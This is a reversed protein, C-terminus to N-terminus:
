CETVQELHSAMREVVKHERYPLVTRMFEPTEYPATEALKARALRATEWDGQEASVVCMLRWGASFAPNSITALRALRLTEDLNGTHYYASARGAHILYATPSRPTLREAQQFHDLALEPEGYYTRVWGSALWGASGNPNLALAQDLYMLATSWDRRFYAIVPAVFALAFPDMFGTKAAEDALDLSQAMGQPTMGGPSQTLTWALLATAQALSPDIERSKRLLRVAEDIDALDTSYIYPMARLYYDYASYDVLPKQASRAVESLIIRPEIAAAIRGAIGDLMVLLDTLEHEVQETWQQVGTAGEILRWVLRVRDSGKVVNGEVLYRVGLEEAITRADEHVDKYTMSSNHSVVFFGRVASLASIIGDTVGVAFYDEASDGGLNRFPLVAVSPYAGNPKRANAFQADLQSSLVDSSAERDAPQSKRPSAERRVPAHASQPRKLALVLDPSPQIQHAALARLGAKHQAEAEAQRDLALLCEILAIRAEESIPDAGVRMEALPLRREPENAFRRDLEALVSLQRRRVDERVAVLWAQFQFQDPCDLGALPENALNSSIALLQDTEAKSLVADTASRLALIDISNFPVDLFVAERDTHLREAGNGNLVPRLKSLSWRLAGKSDSTRDWLLRCLDSRMHAQRNLALFALLARSKKSRPLSAIDQGATVVLGGLLQISLPEADAVM